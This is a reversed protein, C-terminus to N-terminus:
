FSNREAGAPPRRDEFLIVQHPLEPFAEIYPATDKEEAISTLTWGATELGRPLDIELRDAARIFRLDRLQFFRKNRALWYEEHGETARGSWVPTRRCHKSDEVRGIVGHTEEQDRAIRGQQRILM